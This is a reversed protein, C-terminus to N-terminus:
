RDALMQRVVCNRLNLLEGIQRQVDRTVSVLFRRAVRDQFPGPSKAIRAAWDRIANTTGFDTGGDGNHGRTGAMAVADDVMAGVIDPAQPLLIDAVTEPDLRRVVDEMEILQTLTANVMAVSMKKTKAPVIGQWGLGTWVATAADDGGGGGGAAAEVSNEASRRKRKWLPM